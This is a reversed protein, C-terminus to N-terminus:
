KEAKVFNNYYYYYLIALVMRILADRSKVHSYSAGVKM